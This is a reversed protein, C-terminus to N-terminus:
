STCRAAKGHTWCAIFSRCSRRFSNADAVTTVGVRHLIRTTEDPPVVGLIPRGAKLYGFLKAGAFLEYGKMTPPRGLVLLAQADRQLRVVEDHSTPGATQVLDSIGLAAAATAVAEVGEGVFVFRLRSARVADSDSCAESRRSCRTMAIRPSRGRTCSRAPRPRPIPSDDIAGEYGNPIIHIRSPELAGPYARWYCEAEAHYRFTVARAGHLLRYLSRRDARVAWAPRRAEFDNFTITWADRFDLVYPVGTRESARRAVVFSSVPGATAWIVSARRRGLAEVTADVAPRIWPMAMDPHYCWAEARRVASRLLTRVRAQRAARMREVTEVSASTVHQRTKLARKAQLSQWPDRFPVRTVETTAPVLRLLDPDYREYYNSGSSIVRTKGGLLRCGGSSACLDIPGPTEKRLSTM